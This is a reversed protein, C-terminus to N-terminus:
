KKKELIIYSNETIIIQKFFAKLAFYEESSYIRKNLNFRTYIEIKDKTVQVKLIFLGGKNPLAYAKDKPVQAVTYNEPIKLSLAFNRKFPYGFDVPYSREKLQFPNTGFRDFLFPNIRIKSSTNVDRILKIEFFELLAKDIDKEDNIKYDNIELNQKEAEFDELYTEETLASLKERHNAAYYGTRRINLDGILDGAEDLSLNVNTYRISKKNPNLKAWSGEENFNIIRADGNLTRIPIEAFPLFKNTADLFYAKNNITAKVIVYNYDYIVPYLKTPMARDRTALVVLNADIGAAQLSNFLSINIEGVDGSSQEFAEKVKADENTWYKGNWMFHNQIFAYIMKAKALNDTTTLIHAPLRKKFYNKKSTQNNFFLSKLKRDAKKWTTTYKERRGRNDTYYELTFVLKSIYNKKSLMFKEEKFAPINNMGYSLIICAGSTGGMYVCHKKISPNDKDLALFGVLRINYKYNGLIAADFESKIKPIDSQFEWDDLGLYPSLISYKYEIVSGEKINSLTFKKTTWNTGEKTTFITSELFYNKIIKNGSLNYTIAKLDELSKDKYLNITIDALNFAAKDLIKIRFYYDTRTAYDNEADIYVNAHEYLVVAAATSDKAYVRMKLEDKTTQGMKSSRKKQALFNTTSLFFICLLIVIRM